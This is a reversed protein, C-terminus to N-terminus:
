EATWPKILEVFVDDFPPQFEEVTDVDIGQKECWSVLKMVATAAEDVIIRLHTDDIRRPREHVYELQSLAQIQSYTIREKATLEVIDGGYARQRLGEPTDVM